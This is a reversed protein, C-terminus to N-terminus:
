EGEPVTFRKSSVKGVGMLVAYVFLLGLFCAVVVGVGGVVALLTPWGWSSKAISTGLFVGLTVLLAGFLFLLTLAVVSPQRVRTETVTVTNWNRRGLWGFARVGAWAFLRTRMKMVAMIEYFIADTQKRSYGYEARADASYLYDHVVSARAIQQWTSVLWRGVAPVSAFDTSVGKPVTVVEPSDPWGVHYELPEVLKWAKGDENLTVTLDGLIRAM